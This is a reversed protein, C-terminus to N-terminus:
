QCQACLMCLVTPRGYTQRDTQGERGGRAAATPKSSHAQRALSISQNSCPRRDAAAAGCSPWCRCIGATDRQWSVYCVSCLSTLLIKRASTSSTYCNVFTRSTYVSTSNTLGPPIKKFLSKVWKKCWGTSTFFDASFFNKFRGFVDFVYLFKEFNLVYYFVNM